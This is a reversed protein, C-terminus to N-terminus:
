GMGAVVLQNPVFDDNNSIRNHRPINYYEKLEM